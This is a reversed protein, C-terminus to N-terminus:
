VAEAHGVNAKVGGVSLPKRGKRHKFVNAVANMEAPDGVQTGTGHMEVYSIDEPSVRASNMIKRFLREQAAADSTTISTSNGSHNRGSGAVVALINDHQDVADKLRKLVVSGVFDARCYGDADDRYTKCNGTDSLVGSKSLSTWSHPYGVINAAGVVAMDIDNGLLSLCALHIASTTSACASDLSYTPGEWKFHFPLRGAGPNPDTYTYSSDFVAFTLLFTPSMGFARQAGQLTYADCGLTHHSVMHWDDNSQGYFTAIRNPDVSGTQGDSYGAMELAEYASMMFQRHGPDMLLAERPSVQFFRSDFNGPKNMFCGFKTTTSCGDGHETRYFQKIDFRDSPIEECCDKKSMIVDWFEEVNDCSPGRGAMGVIAIRGPPLDQPKRQELSKDNHFSATSGAAKLAGALYPTHSSPGIVRVDLQRPGLKTNVQAIVKTIDLPKSLVQLCISRLLHEWNVYTAEPEDMGWVNFNPVLPRSLLSSKGVIFDLDADTVTVTHQLAHINLENKPLDKMEPCQHM